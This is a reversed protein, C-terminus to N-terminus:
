PAAHGIGAKSYSGDGDNLIALAPDGPIMRMIVFVLFTLLLVTPILLPIRKLTIRLM